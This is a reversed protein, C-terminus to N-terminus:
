YRLTLYNLYDANTMNTKEICAINSQKIKTAYKYNAKILKKVLPSELTESHRNQFVFIFTKTIHGIIGHVPYGQITILVADGIKFNKELTAKIM